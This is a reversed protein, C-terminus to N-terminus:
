LTLSVAPAIVKLTLSKVKTIGGAVAKVELSYSNVAVSATVAINISGTNAALTAGASTIGTPLAAGATGQLSIVADGTLNTRTLTVNVTGSLGQTVDLSSPNLELTLDSVVPATVTLLLSTTKTIGGGIAKVELAYEQAATTNAVSINFSGGTATATFNPTIGTPLAAGSVGQLSVDIPDTLNTRNLTVNVTGAQGQSVSLNAPDISVAFSKGAQVTLTFPATQTVGGTTGKVQLAYTQVAVASGVSINLSSSSGTSPTPSFTGSLGTPLAQGDAQELILDIPTTDSADREITVTIAGSEGQLVTLDPAKLKFSNLTSPNCAMLLVFLVPALWQHVSRKM